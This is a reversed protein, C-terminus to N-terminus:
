HTLAHCGNTIKHMVIFPDQTHMTSHEILLRHVVFTVLCPCCNRLRDVTHILLHTAIYNLLGLSDRYANHYTSSSKIWCVHFM